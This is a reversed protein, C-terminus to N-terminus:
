RDVEIVGMMGNDEHALIHCHYVFKGTFQTFRPRIVVEGHVPLVQTDQLSRARYPKGNVSMVQFDDIHLHFPHQEDSVNQITWEETTDLQAHVDVRNEEFQKGNIFFQEGSSSESFVFKRHRAVPDDGLNPMPGLSAPLKLAEVADGASDVIALTREPYADGQKGTSYPVTKVAYTGEDPGRVLVDFRKGPPLLLKKASWVQGVPNADEAIVHMRGGDFAVRYWIDASINALRWMQTEGPAIELVPAVLGNVTRTTPASSSIQQTVIAGDKVQLDKLAFLRQTADRLEPPLLRDLGEVVILGSLGSFVQQESIHHEHSHYWYIGPSMDDPVPLAVKATTHAPISRLVNDAIGSPSTHFGHFHINTGEDLRNRFRLRIWDGPAVRMTPGPFSGNYSKGKVSSGAVELKGEAITLTAQLQGGRAILEPPESFSQREAVDFTPDAGTKSEDSGDGGLWCGSVVSSAV